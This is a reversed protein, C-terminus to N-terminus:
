YYKVQTVNMPTIKENTLSHIHFFIFMKYTTLFEGSGMTLLYLPCVIYPTAVYCPSKTHEEAKNNVKKKFCQNFAYEITFSFYLWGSRLLSFSPVQSITGMRPRVKWTVIFGKVCWNNHFDKLIDEYEVNPAKELEMLTQQWELRDYGLLSDWVVEHTKEVPWPPAHFVMDNHQCWVIWPLGSRLFYWIGSFPNLSKSLPQGFLCQMMSFLKHPGLNGRKAFLPWIINTAYPWVQQALPFNFFKHKLLEMIPSGCHPCSKDVEALIRGHWVNM